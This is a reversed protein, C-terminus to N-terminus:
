SSARKTNNERTGEFDLLPVNRWIIWDVVMEAVLPVVQVDGLISIQLSKCVMEVARDM